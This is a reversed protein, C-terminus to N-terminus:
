QLQLAVSGRLQVSFPASKATGLRGKVSEVFGVVLNGGLWSLIVVMSEKLFHPAPESDVGNAPDM